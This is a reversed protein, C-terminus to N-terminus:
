KIVMWLMLFSTFAGIFNIYKFIKDTRLHIESVVESHIKRISKSANTKFEFHHEFEVSVYFIEEVTKTFNEVGSFTM